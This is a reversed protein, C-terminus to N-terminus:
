FNRLFEMKSWVVLRCGCVGQCWWLCKDPFNQRRNSLSLTKTARERCGWCVAEREERSVDRKVWVFHSSRTVRERLNAVDMHLASALRDAFRMADLRRTRQPAALEAIRRPNLYLSHTPVSVALPNRHRDFITGRRPQRNLREAYQNRAEQSLDVMRGDAMRVAGDHQLRWAAHVLRSAGVTLGLLLVGMRARMWRQRRPDLNNM